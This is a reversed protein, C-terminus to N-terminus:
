RLKWNDQLYKRGLKTPAHGYGKLKRGVDQGIMASWWKAAQRAQQKHRFPGAGEPPTYTRICQESKKKFFCLGGYDIFMMRVKNRGYPVFVVNEDKVDSYVIDHLILKKQMEFVGQTVADVMGDYFLDDEDSLDHYPPQRPVFLTDPTDGLQMLLVREPNNEDGNDFPGDNITYVKAPVMVDKVREDQVWRLEDDIKDKGYPYHMFEKLAFIKKENKVLWVRGFSGSGVYYADFRKTTRGFTMTVSRVMMAGDKNVVIYDPWRTINYSLGPHEFTVNYPMPIIVGVERTLRAESSSRSNYSDSPTPLGVSVTDEDEDEDDDEDDSIRRRTPRAEYDDDESIRRRKPRPIEDNDDEYIRRNSRKPTSRGRSSM